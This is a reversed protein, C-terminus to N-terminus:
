QPPTHNSRKTRFNETHICATGVVIAFITAQLRKRTHMTVAHATATWQTLLSHRIPADGHCFSLAREAAGM